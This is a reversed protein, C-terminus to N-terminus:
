LTQDAQILITAENFLCLLRMFEGLVKNKETLCLEKKGLEALIDNLTSIPINLIASVTLFQSNWRCRTARPM